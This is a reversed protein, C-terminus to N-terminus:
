AWCPDRNRWQPGNEGPFISGHEKKPAKLSRKVGGNETGGGLAGTSIKM